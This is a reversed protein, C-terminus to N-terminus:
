TLESYLSIWKFVSNQEPNSAGKVKRIQLNHELIFKLYFLGMFKLDLIANEMDKLIKKRFEIIEILKQTIADDLTANLFFCVTTAIGAVM